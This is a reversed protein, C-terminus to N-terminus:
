FLSLSLLLACIIYPMKEKEEQGWSQIGRGCLVSKTARYCLYSVVAFHILFFNSIMIKVWSHLNRM